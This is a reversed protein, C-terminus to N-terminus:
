TQSESKNLYRYKIAMKLITAPGDGREALGAEIDHLELFPVGDYAWTEFTQGLIRYRSLKKVDFLIPLGGRVIDDIGISCRQSLEHVYADKITM